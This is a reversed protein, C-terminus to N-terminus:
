IPTFGHLDRKVRFWSQGVMLYLYQVPLLDPAVWGSVLFDRVGSIAPVVSEPYSSWCHGGINSGPIRRNNGNIGATPDFVSKDYLLPQM